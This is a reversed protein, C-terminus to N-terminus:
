GFLLFPNEITEQFAHLFTAAAAGDIARHDVSLTIKLMPRLIIQGALGIPTDKVIGISVIGAEPPNLIATFEEIGYMGLNSLTFTSGKIEHLKITHNRARETLDSMESQIAGLGKSEIERIVPVILGDDVAVAIGLHVSRFEHIEGDFVHANLRPYRVITSGLLKAIITTLSLKYGTTAEISSSLCGSLRNVETMDASVTLSIHPASQYSSRMRDAIVRRTGTIPVVRFEAQPAIETAARPPSTRPQEFSKLVDVALVAGREGSGRIEELRIGRAAALSRARPSAPILKGARPASDHSRSQLYALV